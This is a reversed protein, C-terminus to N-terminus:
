GRRFYNPNRNGLPQESNQLTNKSNEYKQLKKSNKASKRSKKLKKSKKQGKKPHKTKADPVHRGEAETGGDGGEDSITGIARYSSPNKCTKTPNKDPVKGSIPPINKVEADPVRHRSREARIVFIPNAEKRGEDETEEVSAEAQDVPTVNSFNEGFVGFHAPHYRNQHENQPGIVHSIEL